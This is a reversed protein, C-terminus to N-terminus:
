LEESANPWPALVFCISGQSCGAAVPSKQNTVSWNDLTTSFSHDMSTVIERNLAIDDVSTQTVANQAVRYVSNTRFSEQFSAIHDCSLASATATLATPAAVSNM